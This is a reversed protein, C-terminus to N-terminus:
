ATFPTPKRHHFHHLSASSVRHKAQYLRPPHLRCPKGDCGNDMNCNPDSPPCTPPIHQAAAAVSLAFFFSTFLRKM